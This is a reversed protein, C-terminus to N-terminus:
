VNESDDNEHIALGPQTIFLLPYHPCVGENSKMTKTLSPEDQEPHPTSPLLAISHLDPKAPLNLLSDRSASRAGM